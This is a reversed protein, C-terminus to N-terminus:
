VVFNNKIPASAVAVVSTRSHSFFVAPQNSYMSIGLAPPLTPPPVIAIGSFNKETTKM